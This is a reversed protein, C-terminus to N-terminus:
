ATASRISCSMTHHGAPRRQGGRTQARLMEVREPPIQFVIAKARCLDGSNINSEIKQVFM